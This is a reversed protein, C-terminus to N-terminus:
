LGGNLGRFVLGGDTYTRGGEQLRIRLAIEFSRDLRIRSKIGGYVGM